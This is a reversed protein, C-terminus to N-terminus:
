RPHPLPILLFGLAGALPAGGVVALWFDHTRFAVITLAIGVLLMGLAIWPRLPILRALTPRLDMPALSASAIRRRM